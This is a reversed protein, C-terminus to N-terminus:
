KARRNSRAFYREDTRLTTCCVPADVDGILATFHRYFDATM